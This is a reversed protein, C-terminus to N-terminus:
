PRLEKKTGRSVGNSTAIWIDAGQFDIGWVYNYAIATDAEYVKRNKGDEDSVIVNGKVAGAKEVRQYTVWRKGDFVCLGKDTAMWCEKNRALVFNHFNSIMGSNDQNWDRWNKGDYRSLGFYSGAWTYGQSHSTSVLMMSIVGDDRFLDVTFSGDPDHYAQFHDRKVDYEVLGGGWVAFWLKGPSTSLGYVWVEELPANDLYYKRWKKRGPDFRSIGDTTALWVEHEYVAVGYVVNNVLGSNQQTFNEFTKGDFRSLGAMTGIWLNGKRDTDMSTVAPHVLGDKTGWSRWTKGDYVAIGKKTGAWVKQGVVKVAYVFHHPLGDEETFSQWHTYIVPEQLLAPRQVVSQRKCGQAALLAAVSLLVLPFPHRM